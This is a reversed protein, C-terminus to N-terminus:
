PVFGSSDVGMWIGLDVDDEDVAQVSVRLPCPRRLRITDEPRCVEQGGREFIGTCIHEDVAVVGINVGLLVSRVGTVVEDVEM